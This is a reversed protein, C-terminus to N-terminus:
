VGLVGKFKMTLYERESLGNQGGNIRRTVAKIDDSDALANLGHKQWYWLASKVAGPFQALWDPHAMLDGQCYKSDAYAQYNERGTLQLLGRGRFRYGDGSAESGNGMRNAYVRNAIKAPKSAYQKATAANFYRPFTRLLGKESYCLDEEIRRLCASEHWTQALFHAMRLDTNVGFKEAWKNLYEAVLVARTQHTVPAALLLLDKTIQKM